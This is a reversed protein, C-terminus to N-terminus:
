ANTPRINPELVVRLAGGKAPPDGGSARQFANWRGDLGARRWDRGSTSGIQKQHYFDPSTRAGDEM